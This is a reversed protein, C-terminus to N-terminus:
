GRQFREAQAPSDLMHCYELVGPVGFDNVRSGFALILLDYGIEREALIEADTERSRLSALRVTRRAPDLGALEGMAFSFGHAQAHSLYSTQDDGSGILGVAVEHLRPKWVHAANKDILLVDDRCASGLHTALELGGAGGGVIVIRRRTDPSGAMKM